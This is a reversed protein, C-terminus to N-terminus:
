CVHRNETDVTMLIFVSFTKMSKGRTPDMLVVDCFDNTKGLSCRYVVGPEYISLHARYTSNARPAGIIVFSIDKNKKLFEVTAGFYSGSPDALNSIVIPHTIDLNYGYLIHLLNLLNFIGFLIKFIM